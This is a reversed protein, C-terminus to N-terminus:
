QGLVLKKRCDPVIVSNTSTFITGDSNLDISKVRCLGTYLWVDLNIAFATRVEAQCGLSLQWDESVLIINDAWSIIIAMDTLFQTRIDNLDAIAQQGPTYCDYNLYKLNNYVKKFNGESVEKDVGRMPGSLYIRTKRNM